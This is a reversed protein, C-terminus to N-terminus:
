ELLVRIEKALTLAMSDIENEPEFEFRKGKFAEIITKGRKSHNVEPIKIEKQPNLMKDIAVKMLLADGKITEDGLNVVKELNHIVDDLCHVGRNYLIFYNASALFYYLAAKEDKLTEYGEALDASYFARLDPPLNKTKLFTELIEIGAETRDTSIYLVGINAQTQLLDLSYVDPNKDALKKYIKLAERYAEQAEEFKKLNWYLIGLNNQTTALDPLYVDPNKDALKKRIDLAERYAEHAEEFRKLDSYLLGLTGSVIGRDEGEFYNRLEEGVEILRLSPERQVPKVKKRLELFEDILLLVWEMKVEHYLREVMDEINKYREVKEDYYQLATQHRSKDDDTLSDRIHHFCFQYVREEKKEIMCTDVLENFIKRFESTEYVKEFMDVDVNTTLRPNLVALVRLMELAEDSLVEEIVRRLFEEAHKELIDLGQKFDELAAFDIKQYNRILIITSVPHGEAVEKIKQKAGGTITGGSVLDIFEDIEDIGKVHVDYLAYGMKKRSSVVVNQTSKVLEAVKEDALHFDDIFLIIGENKIKQLIYNIKKDDKQIRVEEPVKLADMVDDLTIREGVEQEKVKKKFHIYGSGTTERRKEGSETTYYPERTLSIVKQGKLIQLLLAVHVLTTKGIGGVGYVEM